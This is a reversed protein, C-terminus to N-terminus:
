KLKAAEKEAAELEVEATALEKLLRQTERRFLDVHPSLIGGPCVTVKGGRIVDRHKLINAPDLMYKQALHNLLRQLSELQQATPKDPTWLNAARSEFDGTVM